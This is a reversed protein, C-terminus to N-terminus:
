VFEEKFVFYVDCYYGLGPKSGRIREVKRLVYYCPFISLVYVAFCVPPTSMAVWLLRGMSLMMWGFVLDVSAMRMRVLVAGAIVTPASYTGGELLIVGASRLSSVELHVM